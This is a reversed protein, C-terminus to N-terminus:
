PLDGSFGKANIFRMAGFTRPRAGFVQKGVPKRQM